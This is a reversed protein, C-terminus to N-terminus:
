FLIFSLGASLQVGSLEASLYDVINISYTDTIPITRQYWIVKNYYPIDFMTLEAAHITLQVNAVLRKSLQYSAGLRALFGFGNAKAFIGSSEPYTQPWSFPQYSQYSTESSSGSM